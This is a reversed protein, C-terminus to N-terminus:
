RLNLESSTQKAEQLLSVHMLTLCRQESPVSINLGILIKVSQNVQKETINGQEEQGLILDCGDVM